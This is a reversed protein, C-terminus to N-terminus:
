LEGVGLQYGDLRLTRAMFVSFYQYESLILSYLHLKAQEELFIQKKHLDFGHCRRWPYFSRDVRLSWPVNHLPGISGMYINITRLM